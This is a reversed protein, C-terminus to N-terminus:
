SLARGGSLAYGVATFVIAAESIPANFLRQYPIIDAFGICESAGGWDRCEEGYAILSEEHILHYLIAESLADRLTIARMPSIINHEEDIGNRFKRAISKM